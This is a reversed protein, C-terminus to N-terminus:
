HRFRSVAYEIRKRDIQEASVSNQLVLGMILTVVERATLPDFQRELSRRSHSVWEQAVARMAPNRVAVVLLDVIRTSDRRSGLLDTVIHDVLSTLAAQQDSAARMREELRMSVTEIYRTFAAALLEDLSAFHYTVSGLPVDAARAIMRHSAGVVGHAAIVDLATTVLRDRREPDYRRARRSPKVSAEVVTGTM